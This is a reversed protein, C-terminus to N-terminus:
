GAHSPLRSLAEMGLIFLLPSLLYGQRLGWGTCFFGVLNGNVLVSLWVTSICFWIWKRWKPGFGVQELLYLLISWNVNDNAKEIDLRCIVGHCNERLRSSVCEHAVLGSGLIQRGVFFANHSESVVMHLSSKLRKALLNYVNGFTM